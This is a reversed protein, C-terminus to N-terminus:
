TSSRIERPHRTHRAARRCSPCNSPDRSPLPTRSHPGCSCTERYRAAPRIQLVHRGARRLNIPPPISAWTAPGAHHLTPALEGPFTQLAFLCQHPALVQPGGAVWLGERETKTLTDAAVFVDNEPNIYVFGGGKTKPGSPFQYAWDHGRTGTDEERVLKQQWSHWYDELTDRPRDWIDLRVCHKLAVARADLCIELLPRRLNPTPTIAM